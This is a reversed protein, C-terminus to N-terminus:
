HWAGSMRSESCFVPWNKGGTRGALEERWNMKGTKEDFSMLQGKTRLVTSM